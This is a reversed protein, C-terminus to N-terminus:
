LIYPMLSLRVFVSIPWKSIFKQSMMVYTMYLLYQYVSIIIILIMSMYKKINVTSNTGSIIPQRIQLVKRVHFFVVLFFPIGSLYLGVAIETNFDLNLNRDQYMKAQKIAYIASSIISFLWIFCSIKLIKRCTIQLSIM